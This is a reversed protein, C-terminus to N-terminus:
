VHARGIKVEYGLGAVKLKMESEGIWKDKSETTCQPEATATGCLVAFVVLALVGRM